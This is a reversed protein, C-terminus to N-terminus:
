MYKQFNQTNDAPDLAKVISGSILKYELVFLALITLVSSLVYWRLRKNAPYLPNKITQYLDWSICVCLMLYMMMFFEYILYHFIIQLAFIYYEVKEDSYTSLERIMLKLSFGLM